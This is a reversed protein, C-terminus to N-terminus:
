FLALAAGLTELAAGADRTAGRLRDPAGADPAVTPNRLAALLADLQGQIDVLAERSCRLAAAVDVTRRLNANGRRVAVRSRAPV